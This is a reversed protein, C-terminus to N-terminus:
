RATLCLRQLAFAEEVPAIMWQEVEKGSVPVLEVKEREGWIEL